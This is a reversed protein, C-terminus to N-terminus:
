NNQKNPRNANEKKSSQLTYVAGSINGQGYVEETEIDGKQYHTVTM